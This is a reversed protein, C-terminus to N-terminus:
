YYDSPRCLEERIDATNLIKDRRSLATRLRTLGSEVFEELIKLWADSGVTEYYDRDDPTRFDMADFQYRLDVLAISCKDIANSFRDDLHIGKLADTKLRETNHRYRQVMKVLPKGALGLPARLCIVSKLLAELAMRLDVYAKARRSKVGQFDM